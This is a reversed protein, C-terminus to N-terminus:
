LMTIHNIMCYMYHQDDPSIICANYTWIAGVVHQIAVKSWLLAYNCVQQVCCNLTVNACDKKIEHSLLRLWLFFLLYMYTKMVQELHKKYLFFLGLNLYHLSLTFWNNQSIWILMRTAIIDSWLISTEERIVTKVFVKFIFLSTPGTTQWFIGAGLFNVQGGHIHLM